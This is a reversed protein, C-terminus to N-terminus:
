RLPQGSDAKVTAPKEAAAADKDHAASQRELFDILNHLEADTLRLNPMNVGNYKKYLATAIPDKEAIVKDPTLIFRELWSHDRVNTVGLLDPGIKDGHGITHCAACHTTFVYRGNDSIDIAPAQSYNTKADVVKANRWSDLWNGIMNALFRANDTASNRMWQGGPENGILVSPTHGDRDNPDPETYLGLKKSILDIDSKKGTLFTWGPGIHYKQAYEKLVKPTDHAPDISISYFFIDKGVRDGLMKQVQALRATELPCSDVCHTYILDIVVSKGKLVDDYFRVKTGDQTTLIVNPFYNAGWRANDAAAPKSGTTIFIATLFIATITAFAATRNRRM